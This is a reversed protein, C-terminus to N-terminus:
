GAEALSSLLLMNRLRLARFSANFLKNFTNFFIQNCIGSNGGNALAEDVLIVVSNLGPGLRNQRPFSFVVTCRTVKKGSSLQAFTAGFQAGGNTMSYRFCHSTLPGESHHLIRAVPGPLRKYIRTCKLIGSLVLIRCLLNRSSSSAFPGVLNRALTPTCHGGM